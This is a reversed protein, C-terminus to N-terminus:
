SGFNREVDTGDLWGDVLWRHDGMVDGLPACVCKVENSLPNRQWGTADMETEVPAAGQAFM